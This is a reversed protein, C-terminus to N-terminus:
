AEGGSALAARALRSSPAAAGAQPLAAAGHAKQSTRVSEGAKRETESGGRNTSPLGSFPNGHATRPRARLNGSPLGDGVSPAVVGIQAADLAGATGAPAPEPLPAGQADGRGARPSPLGCPAGAGPEAARRARLLNQFEHAQRVTLSWWALDGARFEHGEPTVLADQRIYFGPWEPGLVKGGRLLRLLKYSAFPIRATGSEWNRITRASVRLLDACAEVTLVASLRAERFRDAAM